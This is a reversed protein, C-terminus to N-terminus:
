KEELFKETIVIQNASDYDIDFQKGDVALSTNEFVKKTEDLIAKLSKYRSSFHGLVLKNVGALKATKGADITTSHYTEKAQKQLNKTYTAEHYLLSANKIFDITKDRFMTDTCFAYSRLPKDPLTLEHNPIIKGKADIYEEGAKIKLINKISLNYTTVANKRLNKEGRKEKFIFGCTPIRHKVPFSEVIIKEDEFVIAKKKYDLHHFHITFNLEYNLYQDLHMVIERLQHPGVIHLPNKRGLLNFSSILGFLGLFHDGHLHSILIYNIRSMKIRFKRLQIQTGEGCDVLFFRELSNVVQATTFRKSTPLASSCGLITVSFSM